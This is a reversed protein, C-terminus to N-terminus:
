IFLLTWSNLYQCFFELQFSYWLTLNSILVRYVCWTRNYSFRGLCFINIEYIFFLQESLHFQYANFVGFSYIDFFFFISFYYDFFLHWFFFDISFFDFSFFISYFFNDFWHFIINSSFSLFNIRSWQFFLFM